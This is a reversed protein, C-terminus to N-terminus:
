RCVELFVINAEHEVFTRVRTYGGAAVGGALEMMQESTRYVLWWDMFSEMFARDPIDPMFNAIWVKGGPKLLGLLAELLRGAVKDNLYDYLGAAYVFDFRGLRGGRAIVDKVSGARAEVGLPGVDARVVELSQEDQDLAVFRGFERGQMARSHQAERLHGCAISLIEAEPNRGCLADIETALLWARNRVARPAATNTSFGTAARGRPTASDLYGKNAPHHYIFDLMVADGAYGRPKAYSRGIFPDERVIDLVRHHRIREAITRKWEEEERFQRRASHMGNRLMQVAEIARNPEQSELLEWAAELPAIEGSSGAIPGRTHSFHASVTAM